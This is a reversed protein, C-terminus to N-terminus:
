NSPENYTTENGSGVRSSPFPDPVSQAMGQNQQSLLEPDQVLM